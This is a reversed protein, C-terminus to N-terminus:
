KDYGRARRSALKQEKLVQRHDIRGQNLMETRRANGIKSKTNKFAAYRQFRPSDTTSDSRPLVSTLQTTNPPPVPQTHILCWSMAISIGICGYWSYLVVFSDDM